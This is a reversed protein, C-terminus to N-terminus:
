ALWQILDSLVVYVQMALWLAMGKAVIPHMPPVRDAYVVGGRGPRGDEIRRALRLASEPSLALEAVAGMAASNRLHRVMVDPSSDEFRVDAMLIREAM